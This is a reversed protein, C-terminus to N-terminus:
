PSMCSASPSPAPSSANFFALARAATMRLASEIGRDRPAMEMLERSMERWDKRHTDALAELRSRAEADLREPDAALFGVTAEEFARAVDDPLPAGNIGNLEATTPFHYSGDVIAGRETLIKSWDALFQPYDHAGPGHTKLGARLYVHM